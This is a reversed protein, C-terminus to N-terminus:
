KIFISGNLIAFETPELYNIGPHIFYAENTKIYKEETLKRSGHPPIAIIRQMMYTKSVSHTSGGGANIGDAIKGVIGRVGFVNAVSGLALTAGTGGGM